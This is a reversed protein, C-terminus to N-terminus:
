QKGRQVVYVMRQALVVYAVCTLLILAISALTAVAGGYLSILGAACAAFTFGAVLAAVRVHSFGSDVLQQYQHSRHAEWWREGRFARVLIASTTDAAYIALPAFVAPWPVGSISACGATSVVVAGLLYSGCDGLFMREGLLNWPLFLLFAIGVLLGIAILWGRNALLGVVVFSAGAVGGHLASIGNIGDMFNTMNVYAAFLIAIAPIVWWSTGFILAVAVGLISGLALQAVFRLRASLSRVDDVFGLLAAAVSIGVIAWLPLSVPMFVAGAVIALITAIGGGRVIMRSHSSRANPIDM